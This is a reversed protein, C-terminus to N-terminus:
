WLVAQAYQRPNDSIAKVLRAWSYLFTMESVRERDRNPFHPNLSKSKIRHSQKLFLPQLFCFHLRPCDTIFHEEHKETTLLLAATLVKSISHEKAKASTLYIWSSSLHRQRMLTKLLWILGQFLEHIQTHTRTHETWIALIGIEWLTGCCQMTDHM